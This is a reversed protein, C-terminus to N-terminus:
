EDIESYKRCDKLIEYDVALNDNRVYVSDDEYEGFHSAFDKMVLEDINDIIRGRDDSVIGDEYYYLTIIPYECDGAEEPIIIYPETPALEDEEDDEDTNSIYGLEKVMDNVEDVEKENEDTGIDNEKPNEKEENDKIKKLKSYTNLVSEIEENAINEYKNKSLKWTVISGIAAGVAFILSKVLIDKYM